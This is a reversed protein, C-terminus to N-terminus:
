FSHIDRGVVVRLACFCCADFNPPWVKGGEEPLQGAREAEVM